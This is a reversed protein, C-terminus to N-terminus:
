ASRPWPKQGQLPSLHREHCMSTHELHFIRPSSAAFDHQGSCHSSISHIVTDSGTFHHRLLFAARCFSRDIM